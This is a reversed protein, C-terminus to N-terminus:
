HLFFGNSSVKYKVGPKEKFQIQGDNEVKLVTFSSFPEIAYIYGKEDVSYLKEIEDGKSFSLLHINGNAYVKIKSVANEKILKNVMFIPTVGKQTQISFEDDNQIIKAQVSSYLSVFVLIASLMTKM